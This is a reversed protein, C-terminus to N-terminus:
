ITDKQRTEEYNMEAKFKNSNLEYNNSGKKKFGVGLNQHLTKQLTESMTSVRSFKDKKNLQGLQIQAL